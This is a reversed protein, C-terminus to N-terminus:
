KQEALQDATMLWQLTAAGAKLKDDFSLLCAGGKKLEISSNESKTMLWTALTSLHPEHGFVAVTTETRYASLWDLFDQPPSEPRLTETEEEVEGGYEKVVIDATERARVLPSTAFVTVEPVLVRLGKAARAVQKKGKATLPRLDDDQGSAAFADKDEAAGHRIILLDM